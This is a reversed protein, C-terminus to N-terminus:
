IAPRRGCVSSFWFPSFLLSFSSFSFPLVSPIFTFYSPPFSSFFPCFALYHTKLSFERQTLQFFVSWGDRVLLSDPCHGESDAPEVDFDERRMTVVVRFGQELQIQYDCRSSEPYPSPYNPSEVEGTMTTFVNGSCNVLSSFSFLLIFYLTLGLLGLEKRHDKKHVSAWPGCNCVLAYCCLHRIHIWWM